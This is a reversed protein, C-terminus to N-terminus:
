TCLQTFFDQDDGEANADFSVLRYRIRKLVYSIDSCILLSPGPMDFLGRPDQLQRSQCRWSEQLQRHLGNPCSDGDFTYGVVDFCKQSLLDKIQELKRV